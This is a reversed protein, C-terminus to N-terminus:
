LNDQRETRIGLEYEKLLTKVQAIEKKVHKIQVPNELQQLAKQFRFNQLSESNDQLKTELESVTMETLESKRM